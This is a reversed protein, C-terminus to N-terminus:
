SVGGIPSRIRDSDAIPNCRFLRDSETPISL